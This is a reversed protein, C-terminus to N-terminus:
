LYLHNGNNFLVSQLAVLLVVASNLYFVFLLFGYM